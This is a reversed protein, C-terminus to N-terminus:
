RLSVSWPLIAPSGIPTKWWSAASGNAAIRDLMAKFGPREAIPDAGTVAANEYFEAV